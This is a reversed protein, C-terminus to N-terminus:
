LSFKLANDSQAATWKTVFRVLLTRFVVVINIYGFFQFDATISLFGLNILSTTNKSFSRTSHSRM